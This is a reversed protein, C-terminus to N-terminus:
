RGPGMVYLIKWFVVLYLGLYGVAGLPSGALRVTLRSGMLIMWDLGALLSSIVSLWPFVPM